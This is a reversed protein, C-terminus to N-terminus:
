AAERYYYSLLGGVRQRSRVEGKAGGSKRLPVVLRNDLGQHNRESHYHEVYERIVFRLHSEGLLVLRGLCEEKISRVFREAYANLNPSKPPLRVPKVGSGALVARFENTYLPDRDHILYRKGELFGGFTDTLNRAMQTMWPGNPQPTIGAIELRRSELEIVFFVFYRTIGKWSLVEVTFLDAAAVTQWHAQLFTKWPTRRNREPAPEIGYDLLIRKITNRGVEHGLNALAGRIRTYGWSPNENAMIVVLETIRKATCPRGTGRRASGDYKKGVLRQYWRLITDPTVIGAVEGLAKRGLAKGRIALRRRQADSLLLRGGGIQERLVRNEELLYDILDQQQRTLWGATTLLLFQLAHSM